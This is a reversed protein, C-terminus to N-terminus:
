NKIYEELQGKTNNKMGYKKHFERHAKESLTIGNDIAFRLEPFDSFNNIHHAILEGGRTRYKQCTFDDREFVSKKWLKYEFSMRIQTHIPTIGGKWNYHKEGSIEPYKKGKRFSKQGLHGNSMNERQIETLPPKKKGKYFPVNGKKFLVRTSGLNFCKRSCFNKGRGKRGNKKIEKGCTKCIM